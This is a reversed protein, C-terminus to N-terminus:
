ANIKMKKAEEIAINIDEKTIERHTVFRIYRETYPLALVGKKQFSDAITSANFGEKVKAMLINTDPMKNISFYQTENLGIALAKCNEHDEKLRTVMKRIAVLGAAALIGVQRMGGGMMKRIRHAREIFENSGCILSGVPASLGKSVCFMISDACSAIDRANVQLATAANFIRAGDLHVSLGNEKAIIYLSKMRDLPTVSGGAINHSNELCLLRTQPLYYKDPRIAEKVKEPDLIGDNGQILRPLVGSFAAMTGSEINYIHSNAELIVEDGHHTHAKVSIQNGMTGTPVFLAAEKGLLAASEEQLLKVTPDEGFCDDGVEATAMAERMEDTPKTVTDSRLDIMREM